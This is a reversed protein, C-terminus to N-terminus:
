GWTMNVKTNGIVCEKTVTASALWYSLYWLLWIGVPLLVLFWGLAHYGIVCFWYVISLWILTFILVIIFAWARLGTDAGSSFAIGVLVILTIIAFIIAPWAAGACPNETQELVEISVM